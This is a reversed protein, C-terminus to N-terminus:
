EERLNKIEARLADVVLEARELMVEVRPTRNRLASLGVELTEVADELRRVLRGGLQEKGHHLHTREEAHKRRLDAMEVATQARLADLEALLADRQEEARQRQADTEALRMRLDNAERLAQDQSSRADIAQQRFRLCALGVGAAQEVETLARLRANDDSLERAAPQWVVQFLLAALDDTNMGRNNALWTVFLNTANRRLSQLEAGKLSEKRDEERPTFQMVTALADAAPKVEPVNHLAAKVGADSFAPHRLMVSVVFSSLAARLAPYGEIDRSALLLQRPVALLSDGAARSLLRSLAADDLRPNQAIQKEVKPELKLRQGKRGYAYEIFQELTEIDVKSKVGGSAKQRTEPPTVAEFPQDAKPGEEGDAATRISTLPDQSSARDVSTSLVDQAIALSEAQSPMSPMPAPAIPAEADAEHRPAHVPVPESLRTEGSQRYTVPVQRKNPDNNM